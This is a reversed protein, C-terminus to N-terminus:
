QGGQPHQDGGQSLIIRTTTEPDNVEALHSDVAGLCLVSRDRIGNHGREKGFFLLQGQEGAHLPIAPLAPDHALRLCRKVPRHLLEPTLRATVPRNGPKVFPHRVEAKPHRCAAALGQDPRPAHRQHVPVQQLRLMADNEPQHRRIDDALLGQLGKPVALMRIMGREGVAFSKGTRRVQPRQHEQLGLRVALVDFRKM